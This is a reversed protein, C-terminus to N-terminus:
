IHHEAGINSRLRCEDGRLLVGPEGLPVPKERIVVVPKRITEQLFHRTKAVSLVIYYTSFYPITLLLVNYGTQM